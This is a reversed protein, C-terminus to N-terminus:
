HLFLTTSGTKQLISGRWGKPIPSCSRWGVGLRTASIGSPNSERDNPDVAATDIDFTVIIPM